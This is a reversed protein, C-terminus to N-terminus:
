DEKLPDVEDDNQEDEDDNEFEEVLQFTSDESDEEEDEDDGGVNDFLTKAIVGVAIGGVAILTNKLWKFKSVEEEIVVEEAVEKDIEINGKVEEM